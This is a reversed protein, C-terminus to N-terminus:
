RFSAALAEYHKRNPLRRAKRLAEDIQERAKEVQEVQEWLIASYAHRLAPLDPFVGAPVSDSILFEAVSERSKFRELFPLAHNELRWAIEDAVVADLGGSDPTIEWWLDKPPTDLQGLRISMACSPICPQVIVGSRLSFREFMGAIYVGCDIAFEKKIRSNLKSMDAEVMWTLTERKLTCLNKEVVFGRRRLVSAMGKELLLRLRSNLTTGSM